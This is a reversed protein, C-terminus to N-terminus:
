AVVYLSADREDTRGGTTTITCALRYTVLSVGGSVWCSARGGTIAPQTPTVTCDGTQAIGNAPAITFVATVLSDGAPALWQTWDFTYDLVADAHKPQQFSLCCSM